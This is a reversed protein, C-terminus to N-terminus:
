QNNSAKLKKPNLKLINSFSKLNSVQIRFTSYILECRNIRKISKHIRIISNIPQIVNNLKTIRDMEM